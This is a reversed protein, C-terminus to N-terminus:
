AVVGRREDIMQALREAPHGPWPMGVSRWNACLGDAEAMTYTGGSSEDDCVHGKGHPYKRYASCTACSCGAARLPRLFFEHEARARLNNRSRSAKRGTQAALTAWETPFMEAALQDRNEQTRTM